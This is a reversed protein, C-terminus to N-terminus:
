KKLMSVHFINHIISMEALLQLGYAVKGVRRTIEHPGIYRPNLKGKKGFRMIDKMLAVRIFVSDGVVFELPKHRGDAYSKQQSQATEIRQNITKIAETTDEILQTKGYLELDLIKKGGAEHWTILSPCCWGYLANYPAMGITVQYSNNYALEALPLYKSWSGKFGLAYARLMDELVRNTM